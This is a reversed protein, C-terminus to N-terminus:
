SSVVKMIDVPKLNVKWAVNSLILQKKHTYQNRGETRRTYKTVKVFLLLKFTSFM